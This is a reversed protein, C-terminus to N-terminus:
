PVHGGIMAEERETATLKEWFSYPVLPMRHGLRRLRRLERKSPAYGDGQVAQHIQRSDLGIIM